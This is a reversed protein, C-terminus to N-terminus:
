KVITEAYRMAANIDPSLSVVWCNIIMETKNRKEANRITHDIQPRPELITYVASANLCRFGSYGISILANKLFESVITHASPTRALRLNIHSTLCGLVSHGGTIAAM